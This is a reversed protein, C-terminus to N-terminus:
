ERAKTQQSLKYGEELRCSGSKQLQRPLLWEQNKVSILLIGLEKGVGAMKMNPAIYKERAIESDIGKM